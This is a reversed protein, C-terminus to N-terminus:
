ADTRNGQVQEEQTFKSRGRDGGTQHGSDDRKEDEIVQEIDNRITNSM